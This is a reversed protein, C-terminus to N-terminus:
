DGIIRSNFLNALYATVLIISVLIYFDNESMFSLVLLLTCIGLLFIDVTYDCEETFFFIIAAGVEYVGKLFLYLHAEFGKLILM